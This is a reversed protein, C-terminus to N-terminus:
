RSPPRTGYATTVALGVPSHVVLESIGSPSPGCLKAAVVVTPPKVLPREGAAVTVM